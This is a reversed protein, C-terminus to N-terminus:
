FNTVLLFKVCLFSCTCSIAINTVSLFLLFFFQVVSDAIGVLHLLCWSMLWLMPSCEVSLLYCASFFLVECFKQNEYMSFGYLVQSFFVPIFYKVTFIIGWGWFGHKTDPRGWGYDVFIVDLKLHWHILDFRCTCSGQLKVIAWPQLSCMIKCCDFVFTPLWCYNTSM